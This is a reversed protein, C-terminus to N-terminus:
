RKQRHSSRAAFKWSGTKVDFGDTDERSISDVVEDELNINNVSNNNSAINDVEINNECFCFYAPFLERVIEFNGFLTQIHGCLEQSQNISMTKPIIEQESTKFYMGWKPMKCLM